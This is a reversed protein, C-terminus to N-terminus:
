RAAPNVTAPMPRGTAPRSRLPLYAHRSRHDGAPGTEEPRVQAAPQQGLPELDDAHVGQEGAPGGVDLIEAALVELEDLHVHGVVDVDGPRDVRHEMEGRGGARDVVQAVRDLRELDARQSGVVGKAEGLLLASAEQEGRGALDVAVGLHVRLWLAVPAVDVRDAGPPEIVIARFQPALGDLCQRMPEGALDIQDPVADRGEVVLAGDQRGFGRRQDSMGGRGGTVPDVGPVSPGDPHGAIVTEEDLARVSQRLRTRRALESHTVPDGDGADYADWLPVASLDVHDLNPILCPAIGPIQHNVARAEASGRPLAPELQESRNRPTVRPRSRAPAAM